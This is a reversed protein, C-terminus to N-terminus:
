KTSTGSCRPLPPPSATLPPPRPASPRPPAHVGPGQRRPRDEVDRQRRRARAAPEVPEGRDGPAGRQLVVAAAGRRDGEVGRGDRHRLHSRPAASTPKPPRAAAHFQAAPASTAPECRQPDVHARQEAYNLKTQNLPRTRRHCGSALYKHGPISPALAATPVIAAASSARLLARPAGSSRLRADRAANERRFTLRGAFTGLIPM